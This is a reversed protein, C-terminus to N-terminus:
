YSHDDDHANIWADRARPEADHAHCAAAHVRDVSADDLRRGILSRRLAQLPDMGGDLLQDAPVLRDRDAELLQVEALVHARRDGDPLRPPDDHEGGGLALDRAEVVARLRHLHSDAAAARGGLALNLLHDSGQQPQRTRRGGIVGGVGERDGDAVRAVGGGRSSRRAIAAPSAFRKWAAGPTPLRVASRSM